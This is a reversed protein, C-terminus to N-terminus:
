PLKYYADYKLLLDKVTVCPPALYEFIIKRTKLDSHLIKPTLVGTGELREM